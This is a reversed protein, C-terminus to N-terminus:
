HYTALQQWGFIFVKLLLQITGILRRSFGRKSVYIILNKEVKQTKMNILWIVDSSRSRTCGDKRNENIQATIVYSQSDKHSIYKYPMRWQIHPLRLQFPTSSNEISCKRPELQYSLQRAYAPLVAALVDKWMEKEHWIIPQSTPLRRHKKNTIESIKRALQPCQCQHAPARGEM